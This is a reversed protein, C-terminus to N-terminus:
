RPYTTLHGLINEHLFARLGTWDMALDSAAADGTLAAEEISGVGTSEPLYTIATSPSGSNCHRIFDIFGGAQFGLDLLSLRAGIPCEKADLHAQIYSLISTCLEIDFKKFAAMQSAIEASSFSSYDMFAPSRGLSLKENYAVEHSIETQPDFDHPLRYTLIYNESARDGFVTIAATKDAESPNKTIYSFM